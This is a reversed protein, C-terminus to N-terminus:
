GRGGYRELFGAVDYFDPLRRRITADDWQPWDIAALAEAQDDPLRKRVIRAPVGVAVGYPEVDKTVVAGAGVVAGRHVTVGPMIVCNAGLWVDDEIVVPLNLAARAAEDDSARFGRNAYYLFPHTSVDTTPHQSGGICAGPAVSCFAGIRTGPAVRGDIAFAGYTQRGIDIGYERRLLDRTFSDAADDARRILPFVLGRVITERTAAFVGTLVRM